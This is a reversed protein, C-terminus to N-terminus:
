KFGYALNLFEEKVLDRWSIFKYLMGDVDKIVVLSKYGTEPDLTMFCPIYGNEMCTGIIELPNLYGAAKANIYLKSQTFETM